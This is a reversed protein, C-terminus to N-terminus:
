WIRESAWDKFGTNGKKIKEREKFFPKFVKDIIIEPDSRTAWGGGEQPIIPEVVLPAGVLIQYQEPLVQSFQLTLNQSASKAASLSAYSPLPNKNLTGGPVLFLPFEGDSTHDLNAHKTFWQGALLTGVASIKFDQELAEPSITMLPSEAVGAANYCLVDVKGGLQDAAWDLASLLSSPISADASRTLVRPCDPHTNQIETAYKHLKEESRSILVIKWRQSALWLSLSRSM